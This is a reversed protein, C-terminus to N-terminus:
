LKRSNGRQKRAREFNIREIRQMDSIRQVLNAMLSGEMEKIVVVVMTVEILVVIM